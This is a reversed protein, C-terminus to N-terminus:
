GLKKMIPAVAESVAREAMGAPPMRRLLTLREKYYGQMSDLWAQGNAELMTARKAVFKAVGKVEAEWAQITRPIPRQAARAAPDIKKKAM